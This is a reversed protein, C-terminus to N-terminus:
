VGDVMMGMDDGLGMAGMGTIGMGGRIGGLHMGDLGLGHGHEDHEHDTIVMGGADYRLGREGLGTGPGLHARNATTPTTTTAGTAHGTTARSPSLVVPPPHSTRGLREIQLSIQDRLRLEEFISAVREEQLQPPAPTTVDHGTRSVTTTMAGLTRERTGPNAATSTSTSTGSGPRAIDAATIRINRVTLGTPGNGDRDRHERRGSNNGGSGAGRDHRRGSGGGGTNGGAGGGGGGRGDNDDGDNDDGDNDDNDGDNNLNTTNGM